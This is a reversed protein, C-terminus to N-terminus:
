KLHSDISRARSYCRPVMRGASSTASIKRRWPSANRAACPLRSVRLRRRTMAAMSAQRVALEAAMDFAAVVAAHNADGVVAAAVPVARLALAQRAGLPKRLTLSVKQRDEIEVDDEGHRDRAGGDGELVLRGNIVDQELGRSVRDADDGAIRLVEAALGARDSNEVGPALGQRMMGM